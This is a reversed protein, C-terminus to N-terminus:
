TANAILYIFLIVVVFPSVFLFFNLVKSIISPKIESKIVFLKPNKENVLIDIKAGNSFKGDFKEYRIKRSFNAPYCKYNKNYFYAVRVKYYDRYPFFWSRTRDAEVKYDFVEGTVEIGRFKLNLIRVVDVLIIICVSICIIFIVIMSIEEFM